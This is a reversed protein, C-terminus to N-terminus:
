EHAAGRAEGALFERLASAYDYRAPCVASLLAVDEEDLELAGLEIAREADGSVLARLLPIVPLRLPFVDEYVEFPVLGAARGVRRTDLRRHRRFLRLLPSTVTMGEGPEDRRESRDICEMLVSVQQHYRGLFPQEPTWERGSVAPGSVIRADPSLGRGVLLDELDAGLRAEVLGPRGLGPGGTAVIRGVDIVGDGFLRGMAVVDQYGVYWCPKAESPPALFHMHTGVLGAPHPGRFRVHHLGEQEPVPLDFSPSTCLYIPGAHLRGLVTLGSAFAEAAQRLVTAPEAALPDTDIATVFLAHAEADPDPIRGFPRSRIAPWLGYQLLAARIAEPALSDPRGAPLEVRRTLASDELEIVIALLARRDGRRIAVIRGSGPACFRIAERKRDTFLPDGIRVSDGQDVALSPRVGAFDTGLVAVQRISQTREIAEGPRGALPIDFGRRLRIEHVKGQM